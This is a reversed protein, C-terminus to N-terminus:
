DNLETKKYTPCVRYVEDNIGLAALTHNIAYPKRLSHHNAHLLKRCAVLQLVKPRIFINCRETTRQDSKEEFRGSVGLAESCFHAADVTTWWFYGWPLFSTCTVNLFPCPSPECLPSSLVNILFSFPFKAFLFTHHGKWFSSSSGSIVIYTTM